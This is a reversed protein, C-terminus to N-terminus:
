KKLSIIKGPKKNPFSFDSEHCNSCDPKKSFNNESHCDGCDFSSHTEDLVLGTVRHDFSGSVFNKHCSECKRDLKKFKNGSGHCKQCSLQKHYKSLEWGTSVGHNFPLKEKDSHCSNCDDKEHCSICRKHQEEFSKKLSESSTTKVTSIKKDLKHCSVCNDNKHCSKCDLSFLKTHENHFFTVVSGRDSNTKYVLKEPEKVEPHKKESIQKVKQMPDGSKNDSKLSHCYVCDTSGSWERHCDMCQRHYAGKLDPKSIDERKRNAEHCNECKQIPGSTNFHHCGACGGSMDSMEAHIRHSFVVSNYQSELKSIVIAEPSDSAKQHVTILEMRPCDLLCPNQKTPLDCAHCSKCDILQRSHNSNIKNQAALVASLILILFLVKKM